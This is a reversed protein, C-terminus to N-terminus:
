FPCLQGEGAGPALDQKAGLLAGTLLTSLPWAGGGVADWTVVNLTRIFHVPIIKTKNWVTGNSMSARRKQANEILLWFTKMCNRPFGAIKFDNFDISQCKFCLTLTNCNFLLLVLVSESLLVSIWSRAPNSATGSPRSLHGQPLHVTGRRFYRWFTKNERLLFTGYLFLGNLLVHRTTQCRWRMHEEALGMESHRTSISHIVSHTAM